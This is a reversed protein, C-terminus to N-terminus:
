NLLQLPCLIGVEALTQFQCLIEAALARNHILAGMELNLTLAYHTLNASSLFVWRGDAVACKAHLSGHRGSSDKPRQAIPWVLVQARDLIDPGFTAVLGYAIKGESEDPAEAIIQLSVGRNLADDLADAIEPVKYVAFSVILLKEQASRILQLLAQDTRRLPTFQPNPGTWVLELSLERRSEAECHAAAALATTLAFLGSAPYEVQWLSLLDLVDQRWQTNPLAQCLQQSVGYGQIGMDISTLNEIVTVLMAPPLTQAVNRIQALLQPSLPTM